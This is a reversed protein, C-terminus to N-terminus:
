RGPCPARAVVLRGSSASAYDVGERRDGAAAFCIVHDPHQPGHLAWPSLPDVWKPPVVGHADLYPVEYLAANAEFGANVREGPVTAYVRRALTDRASQWALLDQEGLASVGLSLALVAIAAVRAPAQRRARAAERALLPVLPLAAIIAYRDIFGRLVMGLVHALCVALLVAAPDRWGVRWARSDWLLVVLLSSLVVLSVVAYATPGLIHAKAGSASEPGLGWAGGLDVGLVQSAGMLVLVANAVGFAGIVFAIWGGGRPTKGGVAAVGVLFPLAVLGLMSPFRLLAGFAAGPGPLPSGNLSVQMAPTTLGALQAAFAAVGAGAVLVGLWGLDARGLRRQGTRHGALLVVAIGVAALVGLQRQATAAIALAACAPAGGQGAQWRVAFVVAGIVLAAYVIDSNFSADLYVLLPCSLPVAAAVASWTPGAGLRRSLVWLAAALAAVFPLLSLRLLVPDPHGLTLAASWLTQVLAAPQQDPFLRLAHHAVLYRVDWAYMFDDNFGLGGAAVDAVAVLALGLSALVLVAAAWPRDGRGPRGPDPQVSSGAAAFAMAPAIM